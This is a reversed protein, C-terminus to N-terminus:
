DKGERKPQEDPKWGAKIKDDRLLAKQAVHIILTEDSEQRILELAGRLGNFRLMDTHKQEAAWAKLDDAMRSM